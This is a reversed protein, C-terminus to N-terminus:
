GREELEVKINTEWKHRIRGLPRRGQHKGLLVRCVDTKEEM